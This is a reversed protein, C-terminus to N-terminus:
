FISVRRNTEENTFDRGDDNLLIWGFSCCLVSL